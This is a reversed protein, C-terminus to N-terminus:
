QKINKKKVQQIAAQELISNQMNDLKENVTELMKDIQEKPMQKIIDILEMNQMAIKQQEPINAPMSSLMQEKMSNTTEENELSSLMMLPKTMMNNLQTQGESNSKKVEYLTENELAPYKKSIKRIRKM